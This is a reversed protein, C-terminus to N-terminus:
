FGLQINYKKLYYIIGKRKHWRHITQYKKNIIKSIDNITYFRDDINVLINNSRNNNQIVRDVFRCNNPSYGLNNDVRDITLNDRYGNKIAWNYFSIFNDKWESCIKIGKGGYIKNNANNCRTKIGHWINYLRTNSLCGQKIKICGCSTNRHIIHHKEKVCMKGCDCKCLYYYEYVNRNKRKKIKINNLKIITLKNFKDGSKLPKREKPYIM